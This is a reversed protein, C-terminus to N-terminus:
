SKAEAPNYALGLQNLLALIARNLFAMYEKERPELTIRAERVTAESLVGRAILLSKEVHHYLELHQLSFVIQPLVAQFIGFSRMEEGQKALTWTTALIDSLGLSPMVGSIGTPILELMYMGGWGELVGVEGHTAQLIARVKEEMRSEELKVYRFHSHARHLSTVFDTGITPGGPNFDQVILPIDISKLVRAFYRMLDKEALAFLRPVAACIAAAGTSQAWRAAEVAQLASFYNVQAVVPVRGAAFRIAETLLHRREDESLKYFESGYAPLCIACAGAAVAFNILRQLSVLHISENPSFPTPIVPVIGDIQFCPLKNM